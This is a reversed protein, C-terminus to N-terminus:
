LLYRFGLPRFVLYQHLWEEAATDLIFRLDADSAVFSPYTGAFGGLPVVLSSVGLKDAENEIEEVQPMTIDQQLTIERISEIRDRPSVVLLHPPESLQFNVPPFAIKIRLYHYLPQYIGEEALTNRLQRELTQEVMKEQSANQQELEALEATLSGINGPKNGNQITAIEASIERIRELSGYYTIVEETGGEPKKERRFLNTAEQGFVGVEWKAISFLYPRTITRLRCDFDKALACGTIAGSLLMLALITLLIIRTSLRLM